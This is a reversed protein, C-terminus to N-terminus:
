PIRGEEPRSAGARPGDAFRGRIEARLREGIGRNWGGRADAVVQQELESLERLSAFRAEVASLVQEPEIREAPRVLRRLDDWDYSGARLKDFFKHPVFPDRVQWLKLVVLRRLLDGDFPVTAFRYLDHPDGYREEIM